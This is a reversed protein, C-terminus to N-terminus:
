ETEWYDCDTWGAPIGMLYEVWEPNLEAPNGHSNHNMPDQQGGTHLNQMINPLTDSPNGKRKQAELGRPGKYDRATPTPWSSCESEETHHASKKRALYDTRQELIMKKWTASSQLCDLRYTGKSMRSFLENQDSPKFTNDSTPGCTDPIMQGKLDTWIPAPHLKGAEMKAVLNAIAFAEIEVYAVVRHKVGALDLGREIGGYGTCFSILTPLEKSTDM